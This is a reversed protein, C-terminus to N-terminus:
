PLVSRGRMQIIFVALFVLCMGIAVHGVAQMRNEEKAISRMKAEAAVMQAHALQQRQRQLVAQQAGADQNYGQPMPQQPMQQPMYSEPPQRSDIPAFPLQNDMSGATPGGMPGHPVASAPPPQNQWGGGGHPAPLPPPSHSQDVVPNSAAPYADRLSTM